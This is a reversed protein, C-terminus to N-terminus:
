SQVKKHRGIATIEGTVKAGAITPAGVKTSSGDDTLLVTDFTVVDGVKMDDGLTEITIIDGESVVFQKGGTEIVSFPQTQTDTKM